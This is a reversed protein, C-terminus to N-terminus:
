SDRQSPPNPLASRMLQFYLRYPLLRLLKLWWTFRRPYHIEFQGRALGRLTASAAAEPTIIAPMTFNNKETLRTQVFGPQVVSVAIAKSRLELYSVEALYTLAAKSAGYAAAQPLGRYGAVSSVWSWHRPQGPTLAWAQLMHKLGVYAALTNIEFTERVGDLELAECAMPHYVGAVWFVVDPLLHEGELTKIAAQLDAARGVDLTLCRACAPKLSLLPESRRASAIVRAGQASLAEALARGIGSSAGVVWVIRGSWDTIKPNASM